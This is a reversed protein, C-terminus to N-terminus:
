SISRDPLTPRVSPCGKAGIAARAEAFLHGKIHQQLENAAIWQEGGGGRCFLVDHATTSLLLFGLRLRVRWRREPLNWRNISNCHLSLRHRALWCWCLLGMNPPHPAIAAAALLREPWRVPLQAVL